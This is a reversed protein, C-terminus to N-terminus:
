MDEDPFERVFSFKFPKVVFMKAADGVSGTPITFPLSLIFFASGVIGAAIGIPRAVLLDLTNWGDTEPDNENWSYDVAWGTSYLGGIVLSVILFLLLATRLGKM